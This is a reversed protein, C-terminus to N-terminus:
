YNYKFSFCYCSVAAHYNSLDSEINRMYSYVSTVTRADFKRSGVLTSMNLAIEKMSALKQSMVQKNSDFSGLASDRTPILDSLSLLIM